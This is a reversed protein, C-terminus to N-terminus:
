KEASQFLQYERILSTELSHNTPPREIQSKSEEALNYLM